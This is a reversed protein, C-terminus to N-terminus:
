AWTRMDIGLVIKFAEPLNVSAPVEENLPVGSIPRLWSDFLWCQYVLNGMHRDVFPTQFRCLWAGPGGMTGFDCRGSVGVEVIKGDLTPPVGAPTVIIALDGPKCNM